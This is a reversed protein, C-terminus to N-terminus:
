QIELFQCFDDCDQKLSQYCAPLDVALPQLRDLRLNFTYVNRVLHRFACYDELRERTTSRIVAPRIGPADASMQRLLRRHWDAGDPLSGDIEQAIERLIREAGSYFSHLTLALSGLYDLDNTELIKQWLRQAVQTLQALEDLNQQIQGILVASRVMIRKGSTLSLFLAADASQELDTATTSIAFQLAPSADEFRVLDIKFAPDLDFLQNIAQHYCQDPLGWVALDIDSDLRVRRRDRMSGFLRVKEAGYESQLLHAAKQAIQWAQAQREGLAIELNKAALSM